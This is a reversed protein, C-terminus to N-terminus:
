SMLDHLRRAMPSGDPIPENLRADEELLKKMFRLIREVLFECSDRNDRIQNIVGILEKTVGLVQSLPGAHPILASVDKFLTVITLSGGLLHDQVDMQTYNAYEPQHSAM